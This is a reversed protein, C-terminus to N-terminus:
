NVLYSRLTVKDVVGEASYILESGKYIFITPFAEPHEPGDYDELMVYSIAFGEEILEDVIAKMEICAVCGPISVVVMTIQDDNIVSYERKPETMDAIRNLAGQVLDKEDSLSVFYTFDGPIYRKEKKLKGGIWVESYNSGWLVGTMDGEDNFIGGGSYGPIAGRDL